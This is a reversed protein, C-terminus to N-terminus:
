RLAPPWFKAASARTGPEPAPTQPLHPLPFSTSFPTRGKGCRPSGESGLPLRWFGAKCALPPLLPTKSSPYLCPPIPLSFPLFIPPAAPHALFLLPVSPTPHPALLASVRGEWVRGSPVRTSSWRKGGSCVLPSSRNRKEWVGWDGKGWCMCLSAM